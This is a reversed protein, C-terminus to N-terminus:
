QGTAVGMVQASLQPPPMNFLLPSELPDPFPVSPILINPFDHGACILDGHSCSTKTSRFNSSFQLTIINQTGGMNLVSTACAM